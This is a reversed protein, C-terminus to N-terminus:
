GNDNGKNSIQKVKVSELMAKCMSNFGERIFGHIEQRLKDFTAAPRASMEAMYDMYFPLNAKGCEEVVIKEETVSNTKAVSWWWPCGDPGNKGPCKNCRDANKYNIKNIEKRM